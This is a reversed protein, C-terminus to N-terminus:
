AVSSKPQNSAQIEKISKNGREFEQNINSFIKEKKEKSEQPHNQAYEAIDALYFAGISACAGKFSHVSSLWLDQNGTSLSEELQKFTENASDLFLAFIENEFDADNTTIEKLFALDIAEPLPLDKLM